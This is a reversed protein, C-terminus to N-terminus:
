APESLSASVVRDRGGRKAAYLAEDARKVLATRDGAHEPYTAVGVSISVSGLSAGQHALELRSVAGRLTEARAAADLARM